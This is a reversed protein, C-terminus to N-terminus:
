IRDCNLLEQGYDRIKLFFIKVKKQSKWYSLYKWFKLIQRLIYTDNSVFM